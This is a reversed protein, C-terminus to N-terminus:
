GDTDAHCRGRVEVELHSPGERVLDLLAAARRAEPSAVLAM